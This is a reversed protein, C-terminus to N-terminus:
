FYSRRRSLMSFQTTARRQNRQRPQTATTAQATATTSLHTISMPTLGMTITTTAGMITHPPTRTAQAQAIATTHAISRQTLWIAISHIIDMTITIHILILLTLIITLILTLVM